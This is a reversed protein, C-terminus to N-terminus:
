SPPSRRATEEQDASGRVRGSAPLMTMPAAVIEQVGAISRWAEELISKV